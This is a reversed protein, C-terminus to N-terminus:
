KSIPHMDCDLSLSLKQHQWLKGQGEKERGQFEGQGERGWVHSLGVVVKCASASAQFGM